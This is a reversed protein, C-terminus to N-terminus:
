LFRYIEVRATGTQTAELRVTDGNRLGRFYNLTAQPPNYPLTVTVNGSQTQMIFTGTNQNIQSVRGTLQLLSGSDTTGTRDQVSQTVDIRSAYLTGQVDQVTMTALDGQELATVPYQQNRYVVVTNADYRVNGTQGDQTRVQLVQQQANIGRVEVNLQGQNASGPQGVAGGLIDGLAGLTNGGCGAMALAAGLTLVRRTMSSLM